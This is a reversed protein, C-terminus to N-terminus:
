LANKQLSSGYFIYLYVFSDNNHYNIAQEVSITDIKMIYILSCHLQLLVNKKNNQQQLVVVFNKDYFM